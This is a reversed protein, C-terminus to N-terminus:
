VEPSSSKRYKERLFQVLVSGFSLLIVILVTPAIYKEINPIRSGFFYGVSPILVAWFAAGSINFFSFKSYKMQGIGAVTPAFTRIIPIFRAFFITKAGHKESFHEAKAIYERKFFFSNKRTFLSIGARKGIAYGVIYGLAGAFFICVIAAWLPFAGQAALVGTALLLTDGPLFFGAPFGTEAFIIAFVGFLGLSRILFEPDLFQMM